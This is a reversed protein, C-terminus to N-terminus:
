TFIEGICAVQSKDSIPLVSFLHWYLFIVMISLGHNIYTGQCIALWTGEEGACEAAEMQLANAGVM